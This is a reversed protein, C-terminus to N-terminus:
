AIVKRYWKSSWSRFDALLPIPFVICHIWSECKWTSKVWMSHFVIMKQLVSRKWQKSSYIKSQREFDTTKQMMPKRKGEPNQPRLRRNHQATTFRCCFLLITSTHTHNQDTWKITRSFSSGSSRAMVRLSNIWRPCYWQEVTKTTTRAQPPEALPPIVLLLNHQWQTQTQTETKPFQLKVVM